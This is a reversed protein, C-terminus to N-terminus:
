QSTSPPSTAQQSKSRQLFNAIDAIAERAEPLFSAMSTFAHPVTPWIKKEVSVGCERARQEIRNADDLLIETGGAIVYLPPFGQFDAFVPSVLPDDLAKGNAYVIAANELLSPPIMVDRRRNDQWSQGSHTLDAWPSVCFGAFPLPLDQAQLCKMVALTMNGGASDGGFAIDQSKFGNALLWQYIAVSQNLAVPFVQEPTLDYDVVLTKMNTAASLRHAADRHTAPSGAFFGGGHFYMIVADSMEASKDYVWECSVGAISTKEVIAGKPNEAKAAPTDAMRIMAAKAQHFDKGSLYWKSLRMVTNIMTCQWSM